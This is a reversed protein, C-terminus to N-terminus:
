IISLMGTQNNPIILRQERVLAFTNNKSINYRATLEDLANGEPLLNRLFRQANLTPIPKHLPLHPSIAFGHQQWNETYNWELQDNSLSLKAIVNSALLVDLSNSGTM